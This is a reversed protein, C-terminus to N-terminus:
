AGVELATLPKSCCALIFGDAIEEDLIGGNHDMAVEGSLKMVKCTGCLGFECAAAIRVGSARAAQLVTQGPQCAGEIESVAFRIPTVAESPETGGDDGPMPPSVPSLDQAPAGFSEQHYHAMDFGSADLMGRVARMFPEPGCCFVERDRFDPSLLPLRVADIRGMHGFWSERSSREEILFGLSLGPMRSGLLELEKRFIIEEPRRACNVFAVDTWPACDSFWRLMSMMPTVGSGASIFLYKGAPHNHHTFDGAPGYARVRDGPKLHEFMWRTGLSGAQAKVTVAISFPRSPSSSLTYTRMLPGDATPLELTVFQGPKYRFWTQADSRFTFTKVDPAEDAVGVVELVQLRDNWPAMEDLHRYLGIDTMANM